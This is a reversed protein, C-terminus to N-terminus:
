SYGFASEKSRQPIVCDDNHQPLFLLLLHAAAGCMEKKKKLKEQGQQVKDNRLSALFRNGDVEAEVSVEAAQSDEV